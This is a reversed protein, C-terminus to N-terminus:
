SSYLISLARSTCCWSPGRQPVQAGVAHSGSSRTERPQPGVTPRATVHPRGGRTTRLGPHIRSSPRPHSLLSWRTPKTTRGTGAAGGPSGLYDFFETNVGDATRRDLGSTAPEFGAGVIAAGVIAGVITGGSCLEPTPDPRIGRGFANIQDVRWSGGSETRPAAPGQRHRRHRIRVQLAHAGMVEFTEVLEDADALEGVVEAHGDVTTSNPVPLKRPRGRVTYATATM